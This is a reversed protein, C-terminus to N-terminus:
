GSRPASASRRRSRPAPSCGTASCIVRASPGRLHPRHPRVGRPGRPLAPVPRRAHESVPGGGRPVRVRGERGPRAARGRLLDRLDDQDPHLGARFSRSRRGSSRASTRSRPASSPWGGRDRPAASSGTLSFALDGLAPEPSSGSRRWCSAPPRSCPRRPTRRSCACRATGPLATTPARTLAGNRSCPTPTSAGSGSRTSAPGGPSAAATSGPGPRPTSTSRPGSSSSSRTPSM